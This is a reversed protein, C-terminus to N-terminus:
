GLFIVEVTLRSHLQPLIISSISDIFSGRDVMCSGGPLCFPLIPSARTNTEYDFTLLLPYIHLSEIFLLGSCGLFLLHPGYYFLDLQAQLIYVLPGYPFLGFLARTFRKISIGRRAPRTAGDFFSMSTTKTILARWGTPVTTQTQTMPARYGYEHTRPLFPMIRLKQVPHRDRMSNKMQPMRATIISIFIRTLVAVRSITEPHRLPEARLLVSSVRSNSIQTPM